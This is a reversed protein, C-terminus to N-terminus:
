QWKLTVPVPFFNPYRVGYKGVKLDGVEMNSSVNWRIIFNLMKIYMNHILPSPEWRSYNTSTRCGSSPIACSSSWCWSSASRLWCWRRRILVLPFLRVWITTFALPLPLLPVRIPIRFIIKRISHSKVLHLKVWM